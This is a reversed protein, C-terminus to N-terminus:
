GIIDASCVCTIPDPIIPLLKAFIKLRLREYVVFKENIFISPFNIYQSTINDRRMLLYLDLFNEQM